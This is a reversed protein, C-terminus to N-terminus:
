AVPTAPVFDVSAVSPAPVSDVPAVSPPLDVIQWWSKTTLNSRYSM